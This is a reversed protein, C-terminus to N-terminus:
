RQVVDAKVTYLLAVLDDVLAKNNASTVGNKALATGIDGVFKDFDTANVKMGIRNYKAPDHADKMSRGTYGYATNKSGTASCLFDTFSKSLASFGTNNAPTATVEALLVAFYPTMVPDAAIVYIASDVVSRLTLRGSEIMQGSNKPDTVTKTGGVREYLTPTPTPTPTVVDPEPDKEDKKCSSYFISAGALLVMPIILKKKM